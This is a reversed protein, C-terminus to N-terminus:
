GALGCQRIWSGDSTTNPTLRGHRHRQMEGLYEQTKNDRLPLSDAHTSFPRHHAHQHPLKKSEHMETPNDTPEREVIAPCTSDKVRWEEM